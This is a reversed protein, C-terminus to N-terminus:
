ATAPTCKTKSVEIFQGAATLKKSLTVLEDAATIGVDVDRDPLVVILREGIMVDVLDMEPTKQVAQAAWAKFNQYYPSRQWASPYGPDVHATLRRGGNSKFLAFKAQEPRWEPGLGKSITWECYFRRCAFPRTAYIDCGNGPRCHTCWKGAPKALEFVGLVKCCLSCTGCARGPVVMGDIRALEATQAPTIELPFGVTKM